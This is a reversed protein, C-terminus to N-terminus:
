SPYYITLHMKYMIKRFYRGNEIFEVSSAVAEWANAVCDKEKYGKDTKDFLCPYKKVQVALIEKEESSLKRSKDAM